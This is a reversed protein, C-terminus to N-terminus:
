WLAARSDWVFEGFCKHVSVISRIHADMCRKVGDVQLENNIELNFALHGPSLGDGMVVGLLFPRSNARIGLIHTKTSKLHFQM